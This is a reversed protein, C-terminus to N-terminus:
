KKRLAALGSQKKHQERPAAPTKDGKGELKTGDLNEGMAIRKHMPVDISMQESESRAM